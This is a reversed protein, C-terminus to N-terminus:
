IDHDGKLHIEIIDRPIEYEWVHSGSIFHKLNNEVFTEAPLNRPGKQFEVHIPLRGLAKWAINIAGKVIIEDIGRGLARCSVFCENINIYTTKNEAVCVGIIGSSSLRDSLEVSIVAAKPDHMFQEIDSIQYRKYNFIFQNTKNALEAIRTLHDKNNLNYTLQMHLSKLYDISSLTAQMRKREQNAKVDESRLLDEQETRFKKIRPYNELIDATDDANKQALLVHIDSINHNVEILEGPNDDIFLISDTGINLQEAISLISHSKPAWSSCIFTFDEQRLPFDSRKEFLELVDQENNKSAACIFFGQQKLSKLIMQLRCHGPTLKLKSRGDEGLVGEYLTNDLDVVIAKLQPFLMSPIYNLGLERSVELCANMSLKTGSFTELRLDLFRDSLRTKIDDMPFFVFNERASLKANGLLAVLIPKTYLQRLTELRDELFDDISQELYRSLDLWLILMDATHDIQLFSLSDDYDSYTFEAKIGAFDLYAAITHEIMEFSHNRYIDIKVITDSTSKYNILSLRDPTNYIFEQLELNLM